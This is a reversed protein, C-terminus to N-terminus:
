HLVFFSILPLFLLLLLLLMLVCFEVLVDVADANCMLICLVFIFVTGLVGVKILPKGM